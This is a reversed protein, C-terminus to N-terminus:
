VQAARPIAPPAAVVHANDSILPATMRSGERHVKVDTGAPFVTDLHAAVIVIEKENVGRLGAIVNGAKDIQVSVLGAEAFLEKVAAARQAEQFHPAPIETIRAQQANVWYINPSFWDLAARVPANVPLRSGQAQRSAQPSAVSRAPM